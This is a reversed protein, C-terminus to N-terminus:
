SFKLFIDLLLITGLFILSNKTTLTKCGPSSLSGNLISCFTNRDQTPIWASHDSLVSEM